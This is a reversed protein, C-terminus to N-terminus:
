RRPRPYISSKPSVVLNEPSVSPPDAYPPSPTSSSYWLAKHSSWTFKELIRWDREKVGGGWGEGGGGGAIFSSRDM